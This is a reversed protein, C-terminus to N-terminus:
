AEKVYLGNELIYRAVADPVLGSISRGAAVLRRIGTSNVDYLENDIVVVRGSIGPLRAELAKLDITGVGPRKAVVLRCMQFIRDPARWKPLDEMADMGLIFYLDATAGLERRLDSLTDATYSPGERQLDVHSLEYRPHGLIALKVMEVRDRAPAVDVRGKLCPDRAPVFLVRALGLERGAADAIGLHGNHIPDFTGGLVGIKTASEIRKSM